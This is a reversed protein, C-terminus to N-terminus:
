NRVCRAAPLLPHGLGDGAYRAPGDLLEPFPDDPHEYAYGALASLAEFDALAACWRSIAPGSVARWAEIALACQTQWLLLPALPAFFQNRRADLLGVLRELRAIQRSPPLGASDLAARLATLRPATVPEREVRALLAALLELERGPRDVDKVVVRVRTRLALGFAAVAALGISFPLSGIAGLQWAVLAAAEGAVLLAAVLRLVAGSGRSPAAGWAALAAVDLEAGVADGLAALEERLDLRPRLEAVAAQRARVEDPTAPARLWDALRTAGGRTRATCLLEFLSGSGFIDLDASYPHAADAFEAGARGQGAWRDELRALGAAYFATAREAARRAPILRAHAVMLAVFAVAPLAVSWEPVLHRGFAAWAVILGAGFLVLRWSGVRRERAALAAARGARETYRASYESRADVSM